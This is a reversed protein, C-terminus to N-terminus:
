NQPITSTSGPTGPSQPATPYTSSPSQTAPNAGPNSNDFPNTPALPTIDPSSLTSGSPLDPSGPTTALAVRDGGVQRMLDLLQIVDNYSSSRSANLIMTGLPNAQTYAKLTQTLRDIQVPEKEVYIQGDKLTVILRSQFM